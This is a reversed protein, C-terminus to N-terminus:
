NQSPSSIRNSDGEKSSCSSKQQHTTTNDNHQRQQQQQQQQQIMLILVGWSGVIIGLRTMSDVIDNTTFLYFMIPICIVHQQYDEM